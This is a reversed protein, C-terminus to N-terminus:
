LMARGFESEDFFLCEDDGDLFLCVCWWGHGGSEGGSGGPELVDAALVGLAVDGLLFVGRVGDEAVESGDRVELCLGFCQIWGRRSLVDVVFLRLELLLLMALAHLGLGLKHIM